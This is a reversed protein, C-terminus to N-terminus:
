TVPPGFFCLGMSVTWMLSRPGLAFRLLVVPTDEDMVLLKKKLGSTEQLNRPGSRWIHFAQCKLPFCFVLILQLHGQDLNSSGWKRMELLEGNIWREQSADSETQPLIYSVARVCVTFYCIYSLLIQPYNHRVSLFELNTSMRGPEQASTLGPKPRIHLSRVQQPCGPFLGM